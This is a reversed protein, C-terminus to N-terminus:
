DVGVGGRFLGCREDGICELALLGELRRAQLFVDPVVPPHPPPALARRWGKRAKAAEQAVAVGSDVHVVFTMWGDVSLQALERAIRAIWTEWTEDDRSTM